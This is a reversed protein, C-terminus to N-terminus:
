FFGSSPLSTPLGLGAPSPPTASTQISLWPYSSDQPWPGSVKPHHDRSLPLRPCLQGQQPSPLRHAVVDWRLEKQVGFRM